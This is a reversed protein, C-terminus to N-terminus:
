RARECMPMETRVHEDAQKRNGASARQEDDADVPRVVAIVTEVSRQVSQRVFPPYLLGFDVFDAHICLFAVIM